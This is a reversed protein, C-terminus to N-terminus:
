FRKKPSSLTVFRLSKIQVHPIGLHRPQMLVAKAGQSEVEGHWQCEAILFLAHPYLFFERTEIVGM